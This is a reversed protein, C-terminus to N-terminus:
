QSAGGIWRDRLGVLVGVSIAVLLFSLAYAGEPNSELMTYVALPATQTRGQINGAFTITAGFEGLARATTMAIGAQMGAFTMPFVVLRWYQGATAGDIRAADALMPDLGDFAIMCAKIYLPAAVFLQALVVATTTFPIFLGHDALYQGFWGMRGFITLLALGAVAPPLVAPIDILTRLWHTSTTRTTLVIALPTGAVITIVVVALTTVLTLGLAQTVVPSLAASLLAEPTSRLLLGFLPLVFLAVLPIGLIALITRRASHAWRDSAM